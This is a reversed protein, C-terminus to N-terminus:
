SGLESESEKSQSDDVIHTLIEGLYNKFAQDNDLDEPQFKAADQVNFTFSLTAYGTEPSEKISVTGYVVIVDPWMGGKLKVGYFDENDNEVFLYDSATIQSNM